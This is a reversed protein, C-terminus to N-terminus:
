KKWKSNLWNEYLKIQTKSPNKVEILKFKNYPQKEPKIKIKLIDGM